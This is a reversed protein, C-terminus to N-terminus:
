QEEMSVNLYPNLIIAKSKKAKSEMAEFLLEVSMHFSKKFYIECIGPLPNDLIRLSGSIIGINPREQIDSSYLHSIFSPYSGAEIILADYDITNKNFFETICKDWEKTEAWIISKTDVTLDHKQMVEIFGQYIEVAPYYKKGGNILGIKKFGQKILYETIMAGAQHWDFRIQWADPNFNYGGLLIFPVGTADLIRVWEDTVKGTVFIGSAKALEEVIYNDPSKGSIVVHFNYNRNTIDKYFGVIPINTTPHTAAIDLLIITGLKIVNSIDSKVFTGKGHLREIFEQEDLEKLARRVTIQSVNLVDCLVKESPLKGGSPIGSRAIYNILETRAKTYKTHFM